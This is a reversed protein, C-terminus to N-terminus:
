YTFNIDADELHPLGADKPSIIPSEVPWEVGIAPDNWLIGRDHDPSYEVSVYYLVDVIDSLACFGHAFGPPIYLLQHNAASLVVGVWHKYTPSGIRLDVAVDFVEGRIVTVLKAQAAPQKQYHLGRLVNMKSRSHNLQVFTAPIVSAFSTSKYLELFFGRQDNYVQPEVLVVDPIHQSTFTFSM